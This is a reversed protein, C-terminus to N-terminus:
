LGILILNQFKMARFIADSNESGELFNLTMAIYIHNQFEASGLIPGSNLLKRLM